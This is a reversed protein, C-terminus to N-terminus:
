AFATHFESRPPHQRHEAEAAPLIGSSMSLSSAAALEVVVRVVIQYRAGRHWPQICPVTACSRPAGVARRREADVRCKFGCGARWYPLPLKSTARRTRRPNTSRSTDTRCSSSQCESSVHDFGAAFAGSPVSSANSIRPSRLGVAALPDDCCPPAPRGIAGTPARRGAPRDTAGPDSALPRPAPVSPPILSSRLPILPSVWTEGRIVV